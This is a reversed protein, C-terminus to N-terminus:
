REVAFSAALMATRVAGPALCNVRIGLRACDIALARTLNFIAGKAACYAAHRRTAVLGYESSVLTITGGGSREILPIAYKAVRFHGGLNVDIVDRWLEESTELVDGEGDIGANSLVTDLRGMTTAITDVLARIDASSRVDALVFMSTNGSDEAIEREEEGGEPRDSCIVVDAGARAFEHAAALGIGSTGGTM